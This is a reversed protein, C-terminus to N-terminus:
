SLLAVLDEPKCGRKKMEPFLAPAIAAMDAVKSGSIGSVLFMAGLLTFQLGGRTHGILAAMFDILSRAMGSIELLAGLLVFLPVSLLIMHSMGEDIRSVVVSYPSDTVLGIYALTAVGFAFAIPQGAAIAAGLLLVFFILLNVSADEVFDISDAFLSVSGIVVGVTFEVVFYAGNLIAVILVARRLSADSM